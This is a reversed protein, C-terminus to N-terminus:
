QSYLLPLILNNIVKLFPSYAYRWMRRVTYADFPSGYFDPCDRPNSIGLVVLVIVLIKYQISTLSYITAGFGFGAFWWLHELGAVIPTGKIYHPNARNMIGLIDFLLFYWLISKLQALVFTTKTTQQPRPPLAATPEHAYNIGRPNAWLLLGWRLRSRFPADHINERQGVRRIDKQPDCIFINSSAFLVVMPLRSSIGRVGMGYRTFDTMTCTLAYTCTAVIAVFFSRRLRSSKVTYSLICLAEVFLWVGVHLNPKASM